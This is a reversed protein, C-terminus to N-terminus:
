VKTFEVVIGNSSVANGLAILQPTVCGTGTVTAFGGSTIAYLNGVTVATGTVQLMWTGPATWLKVNAYYASPVNEQMVGLGKGSGPVATGAAASPTITGDSQMDVAIFQSVAPSAQFTRFGVDNQAPSAM